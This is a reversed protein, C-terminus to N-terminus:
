LRWWTRQAYSIIGIAIAGLLLLLIIGGPTFTLIGFGRLVWVAVSVGLLIGFIQILRRNLSSQSM